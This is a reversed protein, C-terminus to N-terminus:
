SSGEAQLEAGCRVCFRDREGVPGGCSDCIGIVIGGGVGRLRAVAAEIETELDMEEPAARGPRRIEDIMKIVKAGHSVLLERQANYDEQLFKGMAHDMDLEQIVGLVREREAQLTSLRREKQSISVSYREVLPKGVFAVTLVALALIILFSGLDM